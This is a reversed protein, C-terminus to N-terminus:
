VSLPFPFHDAGFDYLAALGLSGGWTSTGLLDQQQLCDLISIMKQSSGVCLKMLNDVSSSSGIEGMDVGPSEFM